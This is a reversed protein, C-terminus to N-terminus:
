PELANNIELGASRLPNSLNSGKQITAQYEKVHVFFIWM